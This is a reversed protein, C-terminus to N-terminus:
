GPIRILNGLPFKASLIVKVQSQSCTHLLTLVLMPVQSHSSSFVTYLIFTTQNDELPKM